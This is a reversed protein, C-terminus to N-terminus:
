EQASKDSRPTTARGPEPSWLSEPWAYADFVDQPVDVLEDPEVVRGLVRVDHPQDGLFRLKM